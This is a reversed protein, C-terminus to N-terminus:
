TFFWKGKMCIKNRKFVLITDDYMSEFPATVNLKLALKIEASELGSCPLRVAFVQQTTPVFGRSSVNIKPQMLARIGSNFNTAGGMDYDLTMSYALQPCFFAFHRQTQMM